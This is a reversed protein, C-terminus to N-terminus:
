TDNIEKREGAIASNLWPGAIQYCTEKSSGVKLILAELKGISSRWGENCETKSVQAQTKSFDRKKKRKKTYEYHAFDLKSVTLNPIEKNDKQPNM